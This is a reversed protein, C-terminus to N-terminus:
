LSRSAEAVNKAVRGLRLADLCSPKHADLCSPNHADTVVAARIWVRQPHLRAGVEGICSLLMSRSLDLIHACTWVTSVPGFQPSAALGLSLSCDHAPPQQQDTCCDMLEFLDQVGPYHM